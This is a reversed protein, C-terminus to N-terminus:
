PKSVRVRREVEDAIKEAYLGNIPDLGFITRALQTERHLQETIMTKDWPVLYGDTTRVMPM